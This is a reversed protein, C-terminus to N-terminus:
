EVMAPAVTLDEIRVTVDMQENTGGYRAGRIPSAALFDLGVAVRVYADTPSLGHAPDFGLWGIGDVFAEAWAHGAQQDNEGDSRYMYGGVYRAPVGLHRCGAVFIHALDQCVGQRNAFATAAPTTTQTASTDFRVTAHIAGNLGHLLGLPDDAHGAAIDAAFAAIEGDPETLSTERLYLALPLRERGGSIVGNTDDTEVEGIASITMEAIPGDVSFSHTTNGFADEIAELKCDVDTEIRWDCVYQGRHDRPTLRLVQIAYSAPHDYLYRTSHNIKLRM